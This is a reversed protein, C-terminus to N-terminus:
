LISPEGHPYVDRFLQRRDRAPLARETANERPM